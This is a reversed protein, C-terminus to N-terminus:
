EGAIAKDARLPSLSGYHLAFQRTFEAGLFFIQASYYIWLLLAVVSGAAGFGSAAGTGGMYLGIFYRGLSFLLATVFAGTWADRWSLPADPLMKLIVAFLSVIVGFSFLSSLMEFAFASSSWIGGVYRELVALVAGVMLSVMVLFALLLVLLFALIRDRLLRRFAPKPLNGGSWIEDLSGKLEVFVSTAGLLILVAALVTALPNVQNKGARHPVSGHAPEYFGFCGSANGSANMRLDASPIMGLSGVIAGCQDNFVGALYMHDVTVVDFDGPKILLLRGFADPYHHLLTVSPYEKGM